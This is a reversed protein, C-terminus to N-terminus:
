IRECLEKLKELAKKWAEEMYAKESELIDMDVHLETGDDKGIFTYNEHIEIWNKAFDSTRDEVGNKIIGQHELSVFEYPRNEKVFSVIGGEGDGTPDPGLFLIQSGQEWSGSFYSGPNFASTWERYTANSLMIDWVKERPAKIFTKLEIKEM